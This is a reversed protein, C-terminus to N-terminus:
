EKFRINVQQALDEHKPLATHCLPVDSSETAYTYQNYASTHTHASLVACPAWFSRHQIEQWNTFLSSKFFTHISEIYIFRFLINVIESCIIQMHNANTITAHLQSWLTLSLKLMSSYWYSNLIFVNFMGSICFVIFESVSSKRIGNRLEIETVVKPFDIYIWFLKQVITHLKCYKAM